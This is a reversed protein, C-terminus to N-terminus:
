KEAGLLKKLYYARIDEELRPSVGDSSLFYKPIYMWVFNAVSQPTSWMQKNMLSELADIRRKTFADALRKVFISKQTVDINKIAHKLVTLPVHEIAFDAQEQTIQDGIHSLVFLSCMNKSVPLYSLILTQVVRPIQAQKFQEVVQRLLFEWRVLKQSVDVACCDDEAIGLNMHARFSGEVLIKKLLAKVQPDKQDASRMFEADFITHGNSDCDDIFAGHDILISATEKDQALLLPSDKLWSNVHAGYKLLLNVMGIRTEIKKDSKAHVAVMLPTHNAYVSRGTAREDVEAGRALLVHAAGVNMHAVAHFLLPRGAKTVEYANDCHDLLLIFQGVKESHMAANWVAQRVDEHIGSKRKCWSLVWDYLSVDEHINIAHVMCSHCSGVATATTLPKNSATIFALEEDHDDHHIHYDMGMVQFSVCLAFVFIMNNM